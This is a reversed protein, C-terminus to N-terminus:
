ITDALATFFDKKSISHTMEAIQEVVELHPSDRKMWDPYKAMFWWTFTKMAATKEQKLFEFAGISAYLFFDVTMENLEYEAQPKRDAHRFFDYDARFLTAAEKQHETRIHLNAMSRISRADVGVIGDQPQLDSLVREAAGALTLASVLDDWLFYAKIASDIQCRVADLRMVKRKIPAANRM